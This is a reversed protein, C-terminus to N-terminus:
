FCIEFRRTTVFIIVIAACDLSCMCCGKGIFVSNTLFHRVEVFYEAIWTLVLYVVFKTSYLIIAIGFGCAHRATANVAAMNQKEECTTGDRSDLSLWCAYHPPRPDIGPWDVHSKHHFFNYQLLHKESYKSKATLIM